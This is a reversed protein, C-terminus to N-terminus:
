LWDMWERQNFTPIFKSKALKVTFGTGGSLPNNLDDYYIVASARPIPITESGLIMWVDRFIYAIKMTFRDRDGRLYNDVHHRTTFHTRAAAVLNYETALNLQDLEYTVHGVTQKTRHKSYPLFLSLRERDITNVGSAFLSDAGKANGSRFIANPLIQALKRGMEILHQQENTPVERKGVLAVVPIPLRSLQEMQQNFSTAM